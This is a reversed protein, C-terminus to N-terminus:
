GIVKRVVNFLTQPNFPKVLWGLSGAANGLDEMSEIAETTLLLFPTTRFALLSPPIDNMLHKM